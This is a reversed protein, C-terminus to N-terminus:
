YKVRSELSKIFAHMLYYLERKPQHGCQLVDSIGGSENGMRHLSAWGNAFSLHYNGVNAKGDTYPRDANGTLTNIRSVVSELNQKTIPQM